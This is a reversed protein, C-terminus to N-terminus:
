WILIVQYFIKEFKYINFKRFISERYKNSRSHSKNRLANIFITIAFTVAWNAYAFPDSSDTQTEVKYQYSRFFNWEKLYQLTSDM